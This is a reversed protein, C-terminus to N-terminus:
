PLRRITGDPAVEVTLRGGAGAAAGTRGTPSPADPMTLTVRLSGGPGPASRAVPAGEGRVPAILTLMRVDAGHAGLRVVPADRVTRASPVMWGKTVAPPRLATGPLPVRLFHARVPATGGTGGAAARAGDPRASATFAAPLHWLQEVTRPAPSRAEDLVVLVDPDSAALVSRTRTTGAYATDSFRFFDAGSAFRHATLATSASSRFPADRVVLTNHADPARLRAQWAKDSYGIHGSPVLVDRGQAFFTLAMHDNQGHAYRGPGFRATYAMERGFPRGRGGWGSRGMVYGAGYVRARASPRRGEAGKTLVYKLPGSGPRGVRGVTSAFSEGIQLLDGAPTTQFAIFEDMLRHRRALEDPVRRGCGRMADIVLRWRGRNYVSYHTSQENNAGEADIAPRVGGPPRLIADVLRRHGTDALDARGIGCGAALLILSEDTGHNWPGSYHRPDALWSAHRAIAADLWAARYEARLCTLTILRFKASQDIAERREAGFRAGPRENDTIWDRAIGAAAALAARDGTLRYAKLPGGLWELSHLWLQWTRDRYPDLGWDVDTGKAVRVPPSGPGRFRGAKVEAATNERDLGNYGLCTAAAPRAAHPSAHPPSVSRAQSCAAALPLALAAPAAWAALRVARSSRLYM